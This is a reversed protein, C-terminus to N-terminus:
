SPEPSPTSGDIEFTLGDYGVDIGHPAFFDVLQDHNLGGAAAHHTTFIPASARLIGHQRLRGVVEVTERADLHGYYPTKHIGDTSEIILGDVKFDQLFEWTRDEWVGTDTAYLLTTPGEQILFNHADQELMHHAKIPTVTYQQHHIPEFSKSLVMEFPWDPYDAAIASLAVENGYITFPAFPEDVFPILAYQLERYAFHDDHTHTFFVGTWDTARYGSRVLQHHCEPAVDIQLEGNILASARSRINKGGHQRAHESVESHSFFGPIGDSAGTGLLTIKM